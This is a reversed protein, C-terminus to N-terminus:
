LIAVLFLGASFPPCQGNTCVASHRAGWAKTQKWSCSENIGWRCLNSCEISCRKWPIKESFAAGQPSKNRLELQHGNRGCEFVNKVLNSPKSSFRLLIQLYPQEQFNSPLNKERFRPGFHIRSGANMFSFRVHIYFLICERSYLFLISERLQTGILM